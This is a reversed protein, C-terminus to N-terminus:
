HHRRGHIELLLLGAVVLPLIVGLLSIWPAHGGGTTLSGALLLNLGHAVAIVLFLMIAILIGPRLM